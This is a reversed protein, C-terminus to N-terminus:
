NKELHKKLASLESENARRFFNYLLDWERGSQFGVMTASVRVDGSGLDEFEAVSFVTDAKVVEPLAVPKGTEDPVAFNSPYGLKIAFMRGPIYSLVVNTITGPDGVKGSYHTHYKGMMKMEIQADRVSWAKMGETTALAQWVKEVTTRIVISNRLVREQAYANRGATIVAIVSAFLLLKKM